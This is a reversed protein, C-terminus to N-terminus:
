HVKKLLNLIKKTAPNKLSFNRSISLRQDTCRAPPTWLLTFTKTLTKNESLLDSTKSHFQNSVHLSSCLALIIVRNATNDFNDGM